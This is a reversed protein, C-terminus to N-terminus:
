ELDIRLIAGDDVGDHEVIALWRIDGPRERRMSPLRAANRNDQIPQNAAEPSVRHM